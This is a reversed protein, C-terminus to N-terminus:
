AAAEAHDDRGRDHEEAPPDIDRLVALVAEPIERNWVDVAANGGCVDCHIGDVEELRELGDAEIATDKGVIVPLLAGGAHVRLHKREECFPCPAKIRPDM